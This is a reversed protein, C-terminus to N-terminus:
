EINNILELVASITAAAQLSKSMRQAVDDGTSMSAAEAAALCENRKLTLEHVLKRTHRHQKWAINDLQVNLNLTPNSQEKRPKPGLVTSRM